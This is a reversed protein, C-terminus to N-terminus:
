FAEPRALQVPALAVLVAAAGARMLDLSVEYTVCNGLIVPMPM